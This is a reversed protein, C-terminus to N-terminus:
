KNKSFKTTFEAFLYTSFKDLHRFKPVLESNINLLKGTDLFLKKRIVIALM